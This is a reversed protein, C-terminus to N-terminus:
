MVWKFFFSYKKVSRNCRDALLLELGGGDELLVLVRVVEVVLGGGALLVLVAEELEEGALGEPRCNRESCSVPPLCHLM